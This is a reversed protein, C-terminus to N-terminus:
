STFRGIGTQFVPGRVDAYGGEFTLVQGNSLHKDLRAGGFFINNDNERALPVPEQPLCDTSTGQPM